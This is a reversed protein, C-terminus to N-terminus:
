SSYPRATPASLGPVRVFGMFLLAIGVFEAYYLAVPLAALYLGGSGSIVVTGAAIFLLSYRKQRLAGVLSTLVLLVASPFTLLSSTVVVPLPPVGTVVGDMVISRGAPYLIAAAVVLASTVGVFGFWLSRWRRPLALEASGMSLVGVLVAVLILYSQILLGSWAGVYLAAEQALTVFVLFLGAAWYLHCLRRHLRFREWVLGALLLAVAALAVISGALVLSAGM